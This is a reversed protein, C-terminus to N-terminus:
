YVRDQREEEFGKCISVNVTVVKKVTEDLLRVRKKILINKGRKIKFKEEIEQAINNFVLNYAFIFHGALLVLAAYGLRKLHGRLNEDTVNSLDLANLIINPKVNDGLLTMGLLGVPIYIFAVIIYSVLSSKFMKTGDKMDSQINPFFPVGCYGFLISGFGFFFTIPTVKRAPVKSLNSPAHLFLNTTFLIAACTTTLVAFLAVMWYDSPSGFWSIPILFATIVCLWFRFGYHTQLNPLFEQFFSVLLETSILLYVTTVCITFTYLFIQSIRKPIIGLCHQVARTYPDRAKHKDEEGVITIIESLIKTMYLNAGLSMLMIGLSWWGLFHFM